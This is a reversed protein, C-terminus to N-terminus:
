SSRRFRQFYWDEFQTSDNQSIVVFYEFNRLKLCINIDLQRKSDQILFEKMKDFYQKRLESPCLKYYSFLTQYKYQFLAYKYKEYLNLDTIEKDIMKIIDFIDFVKPSIETTQSGSAYNRYRYFVNDNILISKAHLFSKIAFYQDEYKKGDPFRINNKALFSKNYIKNVVSLNRALPNKCDEFTYIQNDSSNNKWDDMDVFLLPIVDNRGEFYSTVNFMYIDLTEDLTMIKSVFVDYLDLLLWDDSDVFSLYDGSAQQMGYNRAYAAGAHNTNFIKIRKDKKAYDQLIDSSNDTSGDNICLIELNQYTQFIVSDLCTALYKASNYVPIIVSIKLNKKM